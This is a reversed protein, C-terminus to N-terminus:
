RHDSDRGMKRSNNRHNETVRRFSSRSSKNQKPPKKHSELFIDVFTKEIEKPNHEIKHYLSTKQNIITELFYELRNITSKEALDAKSSNIFNLRELAIALAIVLALDYRLKDHDNM